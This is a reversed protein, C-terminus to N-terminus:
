PKGKPPPGSQSPDPIILREGIKVKHDPPINNAASLARVSVSYLRAVAYLTEGQKVIHVSTKEKAKM